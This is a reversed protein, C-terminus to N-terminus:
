EDYHNFHEQDCYVSFFFMVPMAYAYFSDLSSVNASLVIRNMSFLFFVFFHWLICVDIGCSKLDQICYLYICYLVLQCFCLYFPCSLCFNSMSLLSSFSPVLKSLTFTFILARIQFHFDYWNRELPSYSYHFVLCMIM